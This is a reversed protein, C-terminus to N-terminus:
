DLPTGDVHRVAFCDRIFHGPRGCRYCAPERHDHARQYQHRGRKSSSAASRDLRFGMRKEPCNSAYHDKRGCDFCANRHHALETMLMHVQEDSLQPSVYSGGRVAHIGRESMMRKVHMDEQLKADDSEVPTVQTLRLPRFARTWEAAAGAVHEKLRDRPDKSTTGVYARGGACEIVYLFQPRANAM